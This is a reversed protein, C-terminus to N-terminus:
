IDPYKKKAAEMMKDIVPRYNGLRKEFRVLEGGKTRRIDSLIDNIKPQLKGLDSVTINGGKNMEDSINIVKQLAEESPTLHKTNSIEERFTDNLEQLRDFPLNADKGASKEFEDYANNIRTRLEKPKAGFREVALQEATRYNEIDGTVSSIDERLKSAEKELQHQFSVKKGQEIKHKLAAADKLSMINDNQAHFNDIKNRLAERRKLVDGEIKSASPINEANYKALENKLNETDKLKASLDKEYGKLTEFEQQRGELGTERFKRLGRQIEEQEKAAVSKVNAAKRMARMAEREDQTYIRNFERGMPINKTVQKRGWQSIAQPIDGPVKSILNGGIKGAQRGVYMGALDAFLQGLPGLKAGAALNRFTEGGLATPISRIAEPLVSGGSMAGMSLAGAGVNDVFSEIPGNGELAGQPLLKGITPQMIREKLFQEAGPPEQGM